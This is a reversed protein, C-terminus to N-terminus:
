PKKFYNKGTEKTIWKKAFWEILVCSDEFKSAHNADHLPFQVKDYPLWAFTTDDGDVIALVYKKSFINQMICYKTPLIVKCYEPAAEPKCGAFAVVIIIAAMLTTVWLALSIKM